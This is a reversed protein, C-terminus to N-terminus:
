ETCYEAMLQAREDTLYRDSDDTPCNRLCEWLLQEGVIYALMNVIAEAKIKTYTEGFNNREYEQVFDIADFASLGHQKLWQEAQYYGVIYYSANFLEHHLEDIDTGIFDSISSAIYSSIEQNISNNM